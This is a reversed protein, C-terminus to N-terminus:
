LFEIQNKSVLYEKLLRTEKSKFLAKTKNKSSIFVKVKKDFLIGLKEILNQNNDLNNLWKSLYSESIVFFLSKNNYYRILQKLDGINQVPSALTYFPKKNFTKIKKSLSPSLSNFLVIPIPSRNKLAKKKLILKREKEIDSKKKNEHTFFLLPKEFVLDSILESEGKPNFIATQSLGQNILELNVLTENFHKLDPGKFQMGSIEIRPKHLDALSSIFQKYNKRFYFSAYILNVGLVGLAEYQQLRNNDFCNVHFIIDNFPGFPKTQFRVGMWSHPSKKNEANSTMATNAFTFFCVDKGKTTKLRRELLKYEHNLMTILREKCVYRTQKGYIDDSFTMDYASMSKAVTQSALGAKFFYNVTEQGAGIEAFTGYISKNQNITFAKGTTIKHKTM